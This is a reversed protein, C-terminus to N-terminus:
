RRRSRKHRNKDKDRPRQDANERAMMLRAFATQAAELERKRQDRPNVTNM